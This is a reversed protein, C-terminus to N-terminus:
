TQIHSIKNNQKSFHCFFFGRWFWTRKERKKLKRSFFFKALIRFNAWFVSAVNFKLYVFWNTRGIKGKTKKNFFLWVKPTKQVWRMFWWIGSFCQTSFELTSPPWTISHLVEWPMESVLIGSFTLMGIKSLVWMMKNKMKNEEMTYHSFSFIWFTRDCVGKSCPM